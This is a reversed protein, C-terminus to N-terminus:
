PSLEPTVRAVPRRGRLPPEQDVFTIEGAPRAELDPELLRRASLEHPPRPFPEPLSPDLQRPPIPANAVSTAGPSAPPNPRPWLLILSLAQTAALLSAVAAWGRNPRVSNRGAAFLLADRDLGGADPTFRSLRELFAESM